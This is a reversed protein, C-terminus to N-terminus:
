ASANVRGVSRKASVLVLSRDASRAFEGDLAPPGGDGWGWNMKESSLNKDHIDRTAM